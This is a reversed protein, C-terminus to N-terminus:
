QTESYQLVTPFGGYSSAVLPRGAADLAVSVEGRGLPSVLASPQWSGPDLCDAVCTTLSVTRWSTALFLRGQRDAALSVVSASDPLATLSWKAPPTCPSACTAYRVRYDVYHAYALQLRGDPGFALSATAVLVSSTDNALLESRWSGADTCGASCSAHMWGANTQYFAHATGSPAVAILWTWPYISATDVQVDHWSTPSSCGGACSTYHLTSDAPDYFLLHLRGSVDAALPTAEAYGLEGSGAFLETGTWNAVVDCAAPCSLYHLGQGDQYVFHIGAATQAANGVLNQWGPGTGVEVTGAKWSAPNACAGACGHYRLLGNFSDWGLVSVFGDPSVLATTGLWGNTYRDNNAGFNITDLVVTVTSYTTAPAAPNERCAVAAGTAVALLALWSSRATM